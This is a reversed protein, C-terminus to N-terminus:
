WLDRKGEDEVTIRNAQNPRLRSPECVFDDLYIYFVRRSPFEEFLCYNRKQKLYKGFFRLVIIWWSAIGIFLPQLSFCEFLFSFEYGATVIIIKVKQPHFLTRFVASAMEYNVVIRFLLVAGYAAASNRASHLYVYKASVGCCIATAFASCLLTVEYVALWRSMFVIFLSASPLHEHLNRQKMRQQVFHAAIWVARTAQSMENFRWKM